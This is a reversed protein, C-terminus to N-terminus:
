ESGPLSDSESGEGSIGADSGSSSSSSSSSSSRTSSSAGGSSSAACADVVLPPLARAGAPGLPKRAILVRYQLAGSGFAAHM